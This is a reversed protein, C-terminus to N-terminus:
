AFQSAPVVIRLYVGEAGVSTAAPTPASSAPQTPTPALSVVQAGDGGASVIQSVDSHNKALAGIPVYIAVRDGDIHETFVGARIADRKLLEGSDDADADFIHATITPSVQITASVRGLLNPVLGNGDEDPNINAVINIPAVVSAIVEGLINDLLDRKLLEGSDDNDSDFLHATITPSVQITASVRGLLNPVLGNGDEDPNINAAINIPAVVSAIVEGLLDEVLDRKLLEGSDDADADFIHVTVTPSAQITASVRGLLNPVLGNGDEDPNINAVVNIPAVVSAIVEGLINDLLDRKLLEGSDDNDSDFLHATITPSVQITASVRGLLNPVLGNGDEDPNINAAINIPAVVSAIVLDRKLLEGSDDTDADFIHVTVTPSAQITASVRGLLNPVLGNGDEDPNINAVVNIPAVVSAIVEGLINDLLDRKLLEGSDTPNSIGVNANIPLTIRAFIKGLLDYLVAGSDLDRTTADTILDDETARKRLIEPTASVKNALNVPLRALIYTNGNATFLMASTGSVLRQSSTLDVSRKGSTYAHYGPPPAPQPAPAIAPPESASPVPQPAPVAPVATAHPVDPTVSVAYVAAPPAPAPSYIFDAIVIPIPTVPVPLAPAPLQPVEVTVHPTPAAPASSAYKAGAASTAAAYALAFVINTIKM